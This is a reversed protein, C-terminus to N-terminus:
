KGKKRKIINYSIKDGSISLLSFLLTEIVGGAVGLIEKCGLHGWTGCSFLLLDDVDFDDDIDIDVDVDTDFIM